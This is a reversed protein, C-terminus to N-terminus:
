TVVIETPKCKRDYVEADIGIALGPQAPVAFMGKSFRYADTILVDCTSRDCEAMPVSQTARALQLGMIVGIQSGWNHPILVAGAAGAMRALEANDLFGGQRIDLQLVDMLRKPKLYRDFEHVERMHEGAALLTKMGAEELKSKFRSYDDMTEPLIEEMWYLNEARTEHLLRWAADFRGRYGYNPDAMLMVKPGIAERVAQTVAIDRDEGAKREMWKDGRGLKIKVGGFGSEVAEQCEEVVARIGRDKFWIDSFYLTGDYAPVQSRVSEGILQWAARGTLKGILDYLAGDLFRYRALLSAFAPARGTIRGQDMQYLDFVNAGVLPKFAAVSEPTHFNTYNGAGIGEVGQDTEIRFLTHEYTHGKPAKDYANMTVFKHFRGQLTAIRIRTIRAAPQRQGLLPFTAVTNLFHRRNM